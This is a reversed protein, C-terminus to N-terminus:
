AFTGESMWRHFRREALAIGTALHPMAAMNSRAWNRYRVNFAVTDPKTTLPTDWLM